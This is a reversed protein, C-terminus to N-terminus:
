FGHKLYADVVDRADGVSFSINSAFKRLMSIAEVRRNEKAMERWPVAERQSELERIYLVNALSNLNEQMRRVLVGMIAGSEALSAGRSDRFDTVFNFDANAYAQGVLAEITNVNTEISSVALALEEARTNSM